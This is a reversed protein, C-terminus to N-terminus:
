SNREERVSLTGSINITEQRSVLSSDWLHQLKVAMCANRLRHMSRPGDSRGPSRPRDVRWYQPLVVLPVFNSAAM